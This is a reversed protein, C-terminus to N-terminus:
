QFGNALDGFLGQTKKSGDEGVLTGRSLLHSKREGVLGFQGFGM